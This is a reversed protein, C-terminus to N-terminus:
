PQANFTEKIIKDYLKKTKDYKKSFSWIANNYIFNETFFEDKMGSHIKHVWISHVLHNRVMYKFKAPIKYNKCIKAAIKDLDIDNPDPNGTRRNECKLCLHTNMASMYDGVPRGCDQCPSKSLYYEYCKVKEKLKIM